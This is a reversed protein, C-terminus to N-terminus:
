KKGLEKFVEALETDLTKKLKTAASKAAAAVEHKIQDVAVKDGGGNLGVIM